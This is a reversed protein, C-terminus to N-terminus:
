RTAGAQPSGAAGHQQSALLQLQALAVAGATSARLVGDSILVPLAGVATLEVLEEPSIGGEPGVLLTVPGADPLVVSAIPTTAQEHAVLVLGGVQALHAVLTRPTIVESHVQPM